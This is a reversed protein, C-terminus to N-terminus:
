DEQMAEVADKAQQLSMGPYHERYLKIADIKRGEDLLHKVEILADPAIYELDLHELILDVKRELQALQRNLQDLKGRNPSFFDLVGM